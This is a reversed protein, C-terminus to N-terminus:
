AAQATEKETVQEQELAERLMMAVSEECERCVKGEDPRLDQGCCECRDIKSVKGM